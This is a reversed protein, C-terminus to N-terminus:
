RYHRSSRMSDDPLGSRKYTRAHWDSTPPSLWWMWATFRASNSPKPIPPGPGDGPWSTYLRFYNQFTTIALTRARARADEPGGRKSPRTCAGRVSPARCPVAPTNTLLIVQNNQVIYEVNRHFLVHLLLGGRIGHHLLNLNQAQM